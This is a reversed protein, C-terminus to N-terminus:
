GPIACLMGPQSKYVAAKPSYKYIVGWKLWIKEPGTCKRVQCRRDPVM